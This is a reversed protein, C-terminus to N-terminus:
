HRAQSVQTTLSVKPQGSGIKAAKVKFHLKGRVLHTVKVVVFTAGTRTTIGLKRRKRAAVAVTKGHSVIKLGSITFTDLPSPWSLALQASRSGPALTVTHSKSKGQALSDTFTKPASQCTLTAEVQDMVSQLASSDPLSFYRGGTDSAIQQLRAQDEPAGVGASFGIVFTPTQPPTPNLHANAYDGVDHGGDTLFIRAQAGPDAARATDFAANYDTAGADAQIATDLASKMAAANPGVPEPNFVADAAPTPPTTFDEGSGFEIAGLTTSNGLANILLDMAQVRLRNPDTVAMSGSDDIIAEINTAQTCAAAAHARPASAGSPAALAGAALGAAALGLVLRSPGRM